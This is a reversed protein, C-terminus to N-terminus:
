TVKKRLKLSFDAQRIETNFNSDVIQYGKEELMATFTQYSRYAENFDTNVQGTLEIRVELGSYSADMSEIYLDRSLAASLDNVLKKFSEVNQLYELDKIFSLEKEYAVPTTPRTQQFRKKAVELGRIEANLIDAQSGYSSMGYSIVGVLLLLLINVPLLLKRAYHNLRCAPDCIASMPSLLPLASVFSCSQQEGDLDIEMGDMAVVDYGSRVANDYENGVDIWNMLVLKNISIRREMSTAQCDSKIMNWLANVQEESQDYAVCRNAYYVQSASAILLDAFRNHRFVVAVPSKFGQKQIVNQLLVYLPFLLVANETEQTETKLQQYIRTPLATFFIDSRDKDLKKRWHTIIQLSETFEGTEQLKKRVLVDAYKVPAEVSMVQSVAESLDSIYWSDGTVQKLDHIQHLVRDRYSYLLGNLEICYQQKEQSKM